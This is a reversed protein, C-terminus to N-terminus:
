NGKTRQPKPNLRKDLEAVATAMAHVLTGLITDPNAGADYKIAISLQCGDGNDRVRFGGATM